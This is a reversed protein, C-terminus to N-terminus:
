RRQLTHIHFMVQVSRIDETNALAARVTTWCTVKQAEPGGHEDNVIPPDKNGTEAAEADNEPSRKPEPQQQKRCCCCCITCCINRYIYRFATAMFGGLHTITLLTLPIGFIAYVITVVQGWTTRPAIHGYGACMVNVIREAYLEVTRRQFRYLLAFCFIPAPFAEIGMLCATRSAAV